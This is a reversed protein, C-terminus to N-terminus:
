LWAGADSPSSVGRRLERGISPTVTRRLAGQPIYDQAAEEETGARGPRDRHGRPASGGQRANHGEPLGRRDRLGRGRGGGWRWVWPGPSGAAAPFAGQRSPGGRAKPPCRPGIGRGGDGSGAAEPPKGPAPGEQSLLRGGDPLCRWSPLWPAAVLGPGLPVVACSGMARSAMVHSVMVHSATLHSVMVHSATVNSAMVHSVMVHSATVHSATVHSVTVHSATVHSAKVHWGMACSGTKPHDSLLVRTGQEM